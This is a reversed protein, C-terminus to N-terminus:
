YKCLVFILLHDCIDSILLGSKASYNVQNIFFYYINPHVLQHYNPEPREILPYLGLDYMCNLFWRTGVYEQILYILILTEVFLIPNVQIQM